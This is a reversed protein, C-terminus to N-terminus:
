PDVRANILNFVMCGFCVAAAILRAPIHVPDEVTVPATKKEAKNKKSHAAAREAQSPKKKESM